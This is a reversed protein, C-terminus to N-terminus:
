HVNRAQGPPLLATDLWFRRINEMVDFFGDIELPKKAYSNANLRYAESVDADASSSSLIIVPISRMQESSKIIALVELGNMRPLNLDLLILDPRTALGDGLVGKLYELAAIGDEAVRLRHNVNIERLAERTLRIDAQNDEVLLIEWQRAAGEM